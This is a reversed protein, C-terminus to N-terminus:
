CTIELLVAKGSFSVDGIGAPFFLTDGKKIKMKGDVYSVSAEGDACFFVEFSANGINIKYSGEVSVKRVSFYKCSSLTECMAGGLEFSERKENPTIKKVSLDAVDAAKEVHLPRLDGNADRRGFDYLRYTVNSSQQIEAIVLGAGIAHVTGPLIFFVDGRKAKVKNLYETITGDKASRIFTDRDIRKKFGYILEAGAEADLVYWMETKGLSNEHKKAYEDDPHVQVSLDRKADILKFLIPFCNASGPGEGMWDPNEELVSSLTRGAYEGNSVTSPGDPHCSCEWTEALPALDIDKSYDRKLKEGGWLYDKGAPSLLLPYKKM